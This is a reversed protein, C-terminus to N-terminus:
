ASGTRRCARLASEGRDSTKRRRRDPCTAACCGPPWWRSLKSRPVARRRNKSEPCPMSPDAGGAKGKGAIDNWGAADARGGAFNRSLGENGSGLPAAPRSLKGLEFLDVVVLEHGLHVVLEAAVVVKARPQEHIGVAQELRGAVAVHRLKVSLVVYAVQSMTTFSVCMMLGVVSLLTVQANLWM